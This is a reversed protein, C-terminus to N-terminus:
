RYQYLYKNLVAQAQDLKRNLERMKALEDPSVKGDRLSEAIHSPIGASAAGLAAVAEVLDLDGPCEPVADNPLFVGDHEACLAQVVPRGRALELFTLFQPLTLHNEQDNPNLKKQLSSRPIGMDAALANLRGPYERSLHYVASVVDAMLENDSYYEITM